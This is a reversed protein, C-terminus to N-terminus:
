ARGGAAATTVPPYEESAIADVGLVTSWGCRITAASRTRSAGVIAVIDGPEIGDFRDATASIATVTEIPPDLNSHLVQIEIFPAQSAGSVGQVLGRVDAENVDWSADVASWFAPCAAKFTCWRCTEPSPNALALPDGRYGNLHDLAALMQNAVSDAESPDVALSHREGSVYQITATTPWVGHVAHYIFAYALLQRRHEPRISEEPASTKLDIIHAGDSATDVRDPRGRLRLEPVDVTEEVATSGRPAGADNARRRNIISTEILHLVGLRKRLYDPWQHPPPPSGGNLSAKLKQVAVGEAEDWARNLTATLDAANVESFRGRGAQEWLSHCIEGLAAFHSWRQGLARYESDQSFVVALPCTELQSALSPSVRDLPSALRPPRTWRLVM